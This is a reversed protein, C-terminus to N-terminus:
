FRLYGPPIGGARGKAILDLKLQEKRARLTENLKQLRKQEAVLKTTEQGTMPRTAAGTGTQPAVPLGGGGLASTAGIEAEIERLRKDNEAINKDLQRVKAEYARKMKEFAQLRVEMPQDPSISTPTESEDIYGEERGEGEKRTSSRTESEAETEAEPGESEEPKEPFLEEESIVLVKKGEQKNRERREKEKKALEGLSQGLALGPLILCVFVWTTRM